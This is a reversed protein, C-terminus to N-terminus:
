SMRLSSHSSFILDELLRDFHPSSTVQGAIDARRSVLRHLIGVAIERGDGPPGSAIRDVLAPISFESHLSLWELVSAARHQM